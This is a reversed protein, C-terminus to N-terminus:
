ARCLKYLHHGQISRSRKYALTITMYMYIPFHLFTMYYQTFYLLHGFHCVNIIIYLNQGWPNTQGQGPSNVAAKSKKELYRNKDYNILCGLGLASSKVSIVLKIIHFTQHIDMSLCDLFLVNAFVLFHLM